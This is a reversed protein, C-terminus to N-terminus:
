AYVPKVPKVIPKSRLMQFRVYAATRVPVLDSGIKVFEILRQTTSDGFPVVLKGGECLQEAWAKPIESVGCTAVICSFPAEHALGLVGDGEHLYITTCGDNNVESIWPELEVSHIEAGTRAFAQTQYGSGTGIELLKDQSTLGLLEIILDTVEKSPITRRGDFSQSLAEVLACIWYSGCKRLDHM